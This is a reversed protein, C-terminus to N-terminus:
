KHRYFRKLHIYDAVPKPVLSRILKGQKIFSRVQTSSIDLADIEIAKIGPTKKSWKFGPRSFVVFKCLNFLKKSDKWKDLGKLSDAGILFFLQTDKPFVKKFHRITEVSYVKKKRDIEYRSVDFYPKGSLALKIMRFRKDARIIGESKKHPPIYAPVFIIKNLKLKNKAQKALFVHGKHIPNFTGGFIAIRM